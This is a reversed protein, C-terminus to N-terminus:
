GGVYVSTKPRYFVKQGHLRGLLEEGTRQDEEIVRISELNAPNDDGLALRMRCLERGRARLAEEILDVDEISLNFTRNYSSM